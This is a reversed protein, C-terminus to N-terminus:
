VKLTLFKRNNSKTEVVSYYYELASQADSIRLDLELKRALNIELQDQIEITVRMVKELKDANSRADEHLLNITRLTQRPIENTKVSKNIKSVAILIVASLMFIFSATLGAIYTSGFKILSNSQYASILNVILLLLSILGLSIAIGYSSVDLITTLLNNIRAQKNVRRETLELDKASQILKDSYEHLLDVLLQRDNSDYKYFTPKNTYPDNIQIDPM